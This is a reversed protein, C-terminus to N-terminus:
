KGEEAADGAKDGVRPKRVQCVTEVLELLLEALRREIEHGSVPRQAVLGKVLPTLRRPMETTAGVSQDGGDLLAERRSAFDRPTKGEVCPEKLDSGWVADAQFHGFADGLHFRF